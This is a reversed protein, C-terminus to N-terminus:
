GHAIVLAYPGHSAQPSASSSARGVADIFRMTDEHEVPERETRDDTPDPAQGILFSGGHLGSGLV